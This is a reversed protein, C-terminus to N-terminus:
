PLRMMRRFIFHAWPFCAVQWFDCLMSATSNLGLRVNGLGPIVTRGVLPEAKHSQAMSEEALGPM